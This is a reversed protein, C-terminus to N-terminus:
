LPSCHGRSSQYGANCALVTRVQCLEQQRFTVLNMAQDSSCTREVCASNVMNICVGVLGASAEKKVISVEGICALESVKDVVNAWVFDIM